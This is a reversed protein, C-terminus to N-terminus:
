VVVLETITTIHKISKMKQRQLYYVKQAIYKTLLMKEKHIVVIDTEEGSLPKSSKLSFAQNLQHCASSKWTGIM